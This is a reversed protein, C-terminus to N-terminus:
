QAAPLQNALRMKLRELELDLEHFTAYGNDGPEIQQCYRQRNGICRLISVFEDREMTVQVPVSTTM